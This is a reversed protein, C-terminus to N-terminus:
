EPHRHTTFSFVDTVESLVSWDLRTGLGCDNHAPFSVLELGLAIQSSVM